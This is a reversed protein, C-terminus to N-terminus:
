ARTEKGDPSDDKLLIIVNNKIQKIRGTCEPLLEDDCHALPVSLEGRSSFIEDVGATSDRIELIANESFKYTTSGNSSQRSIVSVAYKV